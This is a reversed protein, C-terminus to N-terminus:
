VSAAKRTSAALTIVKAYKHPGMGGSGGTYAEDRHYHSGGLLVPTWWEFDWVLRFSPTHTANNSQTHAHTPTPTPSNRQLKQPPGAGCVRLLPKVMTRSLSVGGNM